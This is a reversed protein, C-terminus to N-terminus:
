KHLNANVAHIFSVFVEALGVRINIEKSYVELKGEDFSAGVYLGKGAWSFGAALTLLTPHSYQHYFDHSEALAAVGAEKLMLLASNKKVDRIANNTRYTGKMFQDLVGLNKGACLLALAISELVQRMLNGSTVTNGSVFQKMSLLHLTIATHVLGSVYARREDGHIINDLARWEMFALAMATIFKEIDPKFHKFYEARVEADDSEIETTITKRVEELTEV